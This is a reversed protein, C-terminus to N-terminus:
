ANRGKSKAETRERDKKEMWRMLGQHPISRRGYVALALAYVRDDHFGEPAGYRYRGSPLQECAFVELEALLGEDNPIRIEQSEIAKALGIVLGAKSDVTFKVGFVPLGRMQLDDFIPDGVGTSDLYMPADNWRKSFSACEEIIHPWPIGHLRKGASTEGTEVDIAYLVTYDQVKALDAGAVYERGPVPDKLESTAIERCGRFVAGADDMFEALIEQRFVVDPMELRMEEIFERVHPAPNETSPGTIFGYSGFDGSRAKKAWQYFFNRTGKPTSIALIKGRRVMVAPIIARRIADDSTRAAEDPIVLDWNRGIAADGSFVCRFYIRSGNWFVGYDESEKYLRMAPRWYDLVREKGITVLDPKPASWLIRREPRELAFEGAIDSAGSTKGCQRGMAAAIFRVKPDEVIRALKTQWPLRTPITVQHVVEVGSSM